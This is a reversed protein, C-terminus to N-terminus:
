FLPPYRELLEDHRRSREADADAAIAQEFLEQPRDGDGRVTQLLSAYNRLATADIPDAAIARKYLM